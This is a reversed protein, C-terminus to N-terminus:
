LLRGRVTLRRLAGCGQLAYAGVKECLESVTLDTLFAAGEFAREGIETVGYPVTYEKKRSGVAYKILREGDKTFLVGDVSRYSPNDESVSIEALSICRDFAQESIETVTSGVTVSRLNICEGFANDCVARIGDKIDISYLSHCYQFAWKPIAEIGRGLEVSRLAGCEEFASEGISKVSDPLTVSKIQGCGCLAEREIRSIGDPVTVSKEDGVYRVLVSGDTVFGNM